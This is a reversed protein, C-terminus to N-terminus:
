DTRRRGPAILTPVTQTVIRTNYKDRYARHATTDPYHERGSYPYQTMAHFPLPEVVDPSGSNIDMEKSFGDAM